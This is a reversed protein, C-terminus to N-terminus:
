WLYCDLITFVEQYRQFWPSHLVLAGLSRMWHENLYGYISCFSQVLARQMNYQVLIFLCQLTNRLWLIACCGYHLIYIYVCVNHAGDFNGNQFKTGPLDRIETVLHGIDLRCICEPHLHWASLGTPGTTPFHRPKRGTPDNTLQYNGLTELPKWHSSKKTKPFRGMAVAWRGTKPDSSNNKCTHVDFLLWRCTNQQACIAGFGADQKRGFYEPSAVPFEKANMEDNVFNMALPRDRSAKSLWGPFCINWCRVEYQFFKGWRQWLENGTQLIWPNSRGVPPRDWLPHEKDYRTM